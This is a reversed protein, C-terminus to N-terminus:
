LNERSQLESTHEESRPPALREKMADDTIEITHHAVGIGFQSRRAVPDHLHECLLFLAEAFRELVAHRNELAREGLAGLPEVALLDSSRRTPFSHPEPH